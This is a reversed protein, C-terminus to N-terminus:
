FSWNSENSRRKMLAERIQAPSLHRRHSEDMVIMVGLLKAAEAFDSHSRPNMRVWKGEKQRWLEDKVSLGYRYKGSPVTRKMKPVHRSM